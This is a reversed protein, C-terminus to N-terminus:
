CGPFKCLRLGRLLFADFSCLEGLCFCGLLLFSGCGLPESFCFFVFSSLGRFQLLELLFLFELFLLSDSSFLLFCCFFSGRFLLPDSLLLSQSFLLFLLFLFLSFKSPLRFNFFLLLFLGLELLLGFSLGFDLPLFLLLKSLLFESFLLM